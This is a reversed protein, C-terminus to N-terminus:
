KNIYSFETIDIIKNCVKESFYQDHSVALIPGQFSSLWSEIKELSYLDIHNTPEDLILVDPNSWIIKILQAKRQCGISLDFMNLILEHPHFIGSNILKNKIDNESTEYDIESSLFQVINKNLDLEEQEQDLFGIKIDDESFEIDGGDKKTLGLIIKLLTSKGIGNRGKILVKENSNIEFSLDKFLYKNNIKKSVKKVNIKINKIIEKYNFEIEFKRRLSMSPIRLLNDKIIEKKSKLQNAIRKQSKKFRNGRHGFGMKDENKVKPKYNENIFHTKEIKKSITKLEKEQSERLQKARQYAKEKEKLYNQYNGRFHIIKQTEPCIEHINNAIKNILKRDHTVLIVIGKYDNLFKKLWEKGQEDLHNTPEDLLMIDPNQYRLSILNIKTKQGGSLDGFKQDLIKQNLNLQFIYKTIEFWGCSNANKIFENESIEKKNKKYYLDLLISNKLQIILHEIVKRESFDSFIQPLYGITGNFNINEEFLHKDNIAKLLTTKGIGNEGVIVIKDGFYVKLDISNFILKTEKKINLNKIELTTKKNTM